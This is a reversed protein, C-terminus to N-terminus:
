DVHTLYPQDWEDAPASLPYSGPWNADTVPELVSWHSKFNMVRPAYFMRKKVRLQKAALM